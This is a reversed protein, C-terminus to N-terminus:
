EYVVSSKYELNNYKHKLESFTTPTTVDRPESNNYDVMSSPTQCAWPQDWLNYHYKM